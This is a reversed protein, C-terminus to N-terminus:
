HFASWRSDFSSAQPIPQAGAMLSGNASPTTAGAPAPAAAAKPEAPVPQAPRIAGPVASASSAPKAPETTGTTEPSRLGLGSKIRSTISEKRPTEAPETTAVRAPKEAPKFLSGIRSTLSPEEAPKPRAAITAAPKSPAAALTPAAPVAAPDALRPPNVSTPITGAETRIPTALPAEGATVRADTRNLATLFVPNMGGDAYSRVPAVPAGKAIMQATQIEDRRQKDNVADAVDQPVTYAPCAGAPNFRLPTSANAPEADFVYKKECVDVKPELRTVEFHDNGRKLMKWFAYNPNNRHRAMNEPTMRFPYAQVQFSKQGGFFSERGMAFIESIQEDTMAYCGRSSCDGHVMLQSGTRGLAQDYANPYGLNFSLYYASNPNMQGPTINYFGEPAQRDGEKIKPGLEGSWRCIPYTKLLVYRGTRDQKWLELEAEEKFLRVLIPSEKAMDKTQMDALLAPPIPANAKSSGLPLLGGDSNCGAALLAVALVAPTL